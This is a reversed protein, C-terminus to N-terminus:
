TKQKKTAHQPVFFHEALEFGNEVASKLIHGFGLCPQSLELNRHQILASAIAFGKWKSTVILIRLADQFTSYLETVLSVYLVRAISTAAFLSKVFASGCQQAIQNACKEEEPSLFAQWQIGSKCKFAPYRIWTSVGDNIELQKKSHTIQHASDNWYVEHARFRTAFLEHDVFLNMKLLLKYDSNRFVRMNLYNRYQAIRSLYHEANTLCFALAGTDNWLFGFVTQLFYDNFLM